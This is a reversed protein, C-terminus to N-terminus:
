MEGNCAMLRPTPNLRSRTSWCVTIPCRSPSARRTRAGMTLTAWPSCVPVGTRNSNEHLYKFVTASPAYSVTREDERALLAEVPIGAMARGPLVVLRRASPLGDASAGLAKALPGVRQNRLSEVVPRLDSSSAVPRRRLATRTREALSDDDGTWLGDPGTGAIPIFAPIGRSRVVVGWHEGDRVASNPGVPPVDVWAVLAVDQPLAAQIESLAAVEGAMLKHDRVLKTQFDGLAISTLERERKLDEFRKAREAQDLGRPTSEVLKDLRELAATLDRLRAREDHTLRSDQRAALEDLM